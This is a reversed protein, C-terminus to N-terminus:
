PAATAEFVRADVFIALLARDLAGRDAESRLFDIADDRGVARKYPRDSASLADFIDCITMMRAPPPIDTERLGRPYGSGDLKEHHLWALEPVRALEPSWPIRALFRHTQTVHSEIEKREAEDLSGRPIMLLRTDEAPVVPELRGDAGPFELAVAPALRGATPREHVTPVDADLVEKWAAKLEGSRKAIEARAEDVSLEGSAAREWLRAAAALRARDFREALREIRGPPLKRAKVLVAERVGVKGFDHLVAAYRLATL